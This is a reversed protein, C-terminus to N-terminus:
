NIGNKGGAPADFEFGREALDRESPGAAVQPSCSRAGITARLLTEIRLASDADHKTEVATVEVTVTFGIPDDPTSLPHSAFRQVLKQAVRRAGAASTEPLVVMFRDAGTRALWDGKRIGDETRDVFERAWKDGEERGFRENFETFGDITCSLIALSHGYRQSRGLERPLHQVLYSLNYAGTVPDIMSLGRQEWTHPQMLPLAQTIRRGIELCALIEDTPAGKVLYADAGAAYGTLMDQETDRITLMLVYIYGDQAALRVRRCLELGDMDPMQWDTLVIHCPDANLKAIAEMGTAATEVQYECANLLSSLRNRVLVDDDVVLVRCSRRGTLPLPPLLDGAEWVLSTSLVASQDSSM